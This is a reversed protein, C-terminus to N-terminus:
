IIFYRNVCYITTNEKHKEKILNTNDYQMFIKEHRKLLYEQLM